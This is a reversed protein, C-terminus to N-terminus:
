LVLAVEANGMICRIQGGFNQMLMTKLKEQSPQLVWSFHLYPANHSIHFHRVAKKVNENGEGDDNSFSRSVTRSSTAKSSLTQIKKQQGEEPQGESKVTPHCDVYFWPTLLEDLLRLDKKKLMM